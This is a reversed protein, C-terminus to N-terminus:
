PRAFFNPAIWYHMSQKVVPRGTRPAHIIQGNGVYLAVHYISSSNNNKGWFVLDGPRLQSSSIPTSERYQGVSWHPLSKGAKAWAGATLGSCDWANPGAAGWVYPDGIQAEAFAIVADVGSSPAPPTPDVVPRSPKPTSTPRPTSPATDPRSNEAAAAERAAKEAAARAQAAKREARAAKAAASREAQARAAAEAAEKREQEAQRAAAAREAAERELGDQRERALEVSIGELGALEVILDDRREELEAARAVATNAAAQAADRLGRAERELKEADKRASEAQGSSLEAVTAAARFRDYRGELADAANDLTTRQQVFDSVGDAGVMASVGAVTPASQYSRVLADSYQQRQGEVDDQAIKAAARAKDAAARAEGLQYMAGNYAEAAVAAEIQAADIEATAVALEARVGSVDRRADQAADQAANVEAQSPVTDDASSTVASLGLVLATAATAAVLRHLRM